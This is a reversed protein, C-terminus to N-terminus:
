QIFSPFYGISDHVQADHAPVVVLRPNELRERQIFAVSKLTQPGNDDVIKSALWLKPRGTALAGIKWVVDGVFLFQRGSKLTIFMGVSGPTHGPLPVLVASGDGFLDASKSFTRFPKADFHYNVWKTDARAIQTPFVSGPHPHKLFNREDATVWVDAQPFDSLASAHDWHGHSLVIRSVQIAGHAELQSRASTVPGYSFLPTAWWPMDQTFQKDIDSGLGTDFLFNGKPHRVLIAVHNLKVPLMYSGGSFTLGERTTIESTKIIAFQISALPTDAIQAFAVSATSTALLFILTSFMKLDETCIVLPEENYHRTKVGSNLSIQSPRAAVWITGYEAARVATCDTVTLSDCRYIAPRPRMITWLGFKRSSLQACSLHAALLGIARNGSSSCEIPRVIGSQTQRRCRVLEHYNRRWVKVKFATV